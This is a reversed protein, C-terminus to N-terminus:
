KIRLDKPSILNPAITFNSASDKKPWDTQSRFYEAEFLSKDGEGYSNSVFTGNFHSENWTFVEFPYFPSDITGTTEWRNRLFSPNTVSGNGDLYIWRRNTRFVNDYILVHERSLASLKVAAARASGTAIATFRNSHVANNSSGEGPNARFAYAECEGAYANIINNYANLDTINYEMQIGYAGGMECGNYEQNRPLEQVNMVNDYVISGTGGVFIGRCSNDESGCNIINGFIKAGNASIAFDNTHRSQLRITNGFIENQAFGAKQSVRFATQVGQHVTNNYFKNGYGAYAIKVAAGDFHDRWEIARQPNYINNNYIEGNRANLSYVSHSNAGDSFLTLDHLKWGTGSNEYIHICSSYDSKGRGQRIAGNMITANNATGYSTVDSIVSSGQWSTPGVAVGALRTRQIRIDDFYIYGSATASAGLIGADVTVIQSSSGVTFDVKIYRFGRWTRGVASATVSTGHLKVYATIDDDVRNYVMASLSYTTNAALTVPKLGRAEQDANPVSIRMSKAGSYLSVPNVYRGSFIEGNKSLRWTGTDEFDGDMNDLPKSNDYTVTHGNLDLTINDGTIFFCSGSSEVDNQLVYTANAKTLYGCTTLDVAFSTTIGISLLIVAVLAFVKAKIEIKSM